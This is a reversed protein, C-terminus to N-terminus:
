KAAGAPAPALTVPGLRALEADVVELELDQPVFGDKSLRVAYRGPPLDDMKAPTTGQREAPGTLRVQVGPPATEIEAFGAQKELAVELTREEAARLALREERPRFGPAHFVLTGEGPPVDLTGGPSLEEQLVVEGLSVSVAEPGTFRVTLRASLPELAVPVATRTGAPVVVDVDRARFGMAQVQLHHPGPPLSPLEGGAPLEVPTAGDVAVQAARPQAAGGGSASLELVLVGPGPVLSVPHPALEQGAVIGLVTESPQYLERELRLRHAGASLGPLRAPTVLGTDRGDLLIRAGPPQSSLVLDGRAYENWSWASGALLLVAAGAALVPRPLRRRRPEPRAPPPLPPLDVLEAPLPAADPQLPEPQAPEPPLPEPEPREPELDLFELPVQRPSAPATWDEPDEGQIQVEEPSPALPEPPAIPSIERESSPLDPEFRPADPRFPPSPVAPAAVPRELPLKRRLSQPTDAPGSGPRELAPKRVVPRAIPPEPPPTPSFGPFELLDSPAGELDTLLFELASDLAALAVRVREQGPHSAPLGRLQRQCRETLVRHQAEVQSACAGEPVQLIERARAPTM